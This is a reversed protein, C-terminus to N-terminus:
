ASDVFQYIEFISLLFNVDSAATQPAVTNGDDRSRLVIEEIRKLDSYKVPVSLTRIEICM